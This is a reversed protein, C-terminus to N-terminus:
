STLLLGGTVIALIVVTTGIITAMHAWGLNIIARMSTGIGLASMAVLLGWNTAEILVSKIPQYLPALSPMGSAFTNLICLALFVLAFVPVPVRASTQGATATNRAFWWGICLVVPLLLFVRYLKVIVATDGVSPSVAYGAGVVQAVDHITGGLLIGTDVDSMSLAIAIPPYAIMALTSLANVAVVVFAIDAEKGPYAPVVTATALTASAGCVATAAGALMGFGDPRDMLRALWLGTVVTAIMAILILVATGLGLNYIDSLAIRLGLLAVAVRLVTSLCFKLGPAVSSGVWPNLLIGVLLAIVMAPITIVKAVIPTALM